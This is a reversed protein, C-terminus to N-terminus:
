AINQIDNARVVVIQGNPLEIRLEGYISTVRPGAGDRMNEAANNAMHSGIITGKVTSGNKLEITVEGFLNNIMIDRVRDYEENTQTWGNM